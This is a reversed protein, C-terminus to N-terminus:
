TRNAKRGLIMAAFLYGGVFVGLTALIRWSIGHRYIELALVFMAGTLVFGFKVIKSKKISM